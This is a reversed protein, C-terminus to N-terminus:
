SFRDPVDILVFQKALSGFMAPNSTKLGLLSDRCLTPVELAATAPCYGDVAISANGVSVPADKRLMWKGPEGVTRYLPNIAPNMM